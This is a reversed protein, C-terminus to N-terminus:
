NNELLVWHTVVLTIFLLGTAIERNRFLAQPLFFPLFATTVLHLKM